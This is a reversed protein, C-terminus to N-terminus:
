AAPKTAKIVFVIKENNWVPEEVTTIQMGLTTLLNHYENLSHYFHKIEFTTGTSSDKFTRKRGKATLAPHFDSILITGGPKLSQLLDPIVSELQQIHGLVLAIIIVDFHLQPAATSILDGCIFETRNCRIKAREIMSPSLDIGLIYKAEQTEALNCFYGDGCGADLVSLGHLNPLLAEIISDSNQKIPNSEYQYTTAWRNYGELPNLSRIRKGLFPINM